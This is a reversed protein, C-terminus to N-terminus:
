TSSAGTIVDRVNDGDEEKDTYEAMSHTM